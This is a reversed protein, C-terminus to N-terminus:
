LRACGIPLEKRPMHDYDEDSVFSCLCGDAICLVPRPRRASAAPANKEGAPTEVRPYDSFGDAAKGTADSTM